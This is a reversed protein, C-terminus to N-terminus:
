MGRVKLRNEAKEKEVLVPRLVEYVHPPPASKSDGAPLLLVSPASRAVPQARCQLMAVLAHLSPPEWGSAAAFPCVKCRATRSVAAHCCPCAAVPAGLQCPLCAM